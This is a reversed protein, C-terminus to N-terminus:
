RPNSDGEKRSTQPEDTPSGRKKNYCSFRFQFILLNCQSNFCHNSDILISTEIFYSIRIFTSDCFIISNNKLITFNRIEFFHFRKYQISVCTDRHTCQYSPINTYVFIIFWYQNLCIQFTWTHIHRLKTTTRYKTISYFLYKIVYFIM